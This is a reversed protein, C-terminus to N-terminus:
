LICLVFDARAGDAQGTLFGQAGELFGGPALNTLKGNFCMLANRYQSILSLVPSPFIVFVPFNRTQGKNNEVLMYNGRSSEYVRFM